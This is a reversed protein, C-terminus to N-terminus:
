KLIAFIKEAIDPEIDITLRTKGTKLAEKTIKLKPSKSENESELGFWLYSDDANLTKSIRKRIDQQSPVSGRQVAKQVYDKPVNALRSCEIQTLGARALAIKIRAKVGENIDKM